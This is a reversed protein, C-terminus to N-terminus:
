DSIIDIDDFGNDSLPLKNGCRPCEEVREGCSRHLKNGCSCTMIELGTKVVGMCIRCIVAETATFITSDEGKSENSPKEPPQYERNERWGKERIIRELGMHEALDSGIEDLGDYCGNWTKLRIKYKAWIEILTNRMKKRLDDAPEGKFVVALYMTVGRELYITMKGYKFSKLSASDEKFSDKAFDTIATLMGSMIDEDMSEQLQTEFSVSKVLRGDVYILFIDSITFQNDIGVIQPDQPILKSKPKPPLALVQDKQAFEEELNRNIHNAKDLEKLINVQPVIFWGIYDPRYQTKFSKVEEIFEKLWKRMYSIYIDWDDDLIFKIWVYGNLICIDQTIDFDDLELKIISSKCFDVIEKEDKQYFSSLILSLIVFTNACITNNWLGNEWQTSKLGQFTWRMRDDIMKNLNGGGLTIDRFTFTKDLIKRKLFTFALLVDKTAQCDFEIVGWHFGKVLIESMEKNMMREIAESHKDTGLLTRPVTTWGYSQKIHYIAGESEYPIVTNEEMVKCLWRSAFVSNDKVSRRINKIIEGGFTVKNNISNLVDLYSLLALLVASTTKVPEFNKTDASCWFKENKERIYEGIGILWNFENHLFDNVKNKLKENLFGYATCLGWLARATFFINHKDSIEYISLQSAIDKIIYIKEDAEIKWHNEVEVNIRANEGLKLNWEQKNIKEKVVDYQGDILYTGYKNKKLRGFYRISHIPNLRIGNVYNWSIANKLNKGWSYHENNYLNEPARNDILSEVAELVNYILDKEVYGYNRM